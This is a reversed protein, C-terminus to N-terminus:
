RDRWRKPWSFTFRAGRPSESDTSPGTEDIGITGGASEVIRRIVALGMGAGEVDDQRRLKTFLQFVRARDSPPIGPGDDAVTFAHHSEQEVASVEIVGTTRDHHKMANTLLNLFVRELPSRPTTVRPLPTTVRVEFRPDDLLDVVGALLENVDVEEAALESGGVRCYDLLAVLLADMRKIRGRLLKLRTESEEDVQGSLDEELWSALQGISRLPARLDHSAVFAFEELAQAQAAKVRDTADRIVIMVEGRPLPVLQAECAREGVRSRVRYQLVTPRRADLSALAALIPAAAEPILLERLQMKPHPQCLLQPDDPAGGRAQRIHGERDAVLFLDPLASFIAQLESNSQLLEMSSLELSRELMARDQEHQEYAADIAEVFSQLDEPPLRQGLHRKLQRALLNHM